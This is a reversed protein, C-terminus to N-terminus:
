CHKKLDADFSIWEYSQLQTKACILADVYDIRHRVMIELAATLLAKDRNVVGRLSLLKVLKEIVIEQPVSYFKTLVYLVEMVVESMIEVHLTGAQIQRFIEQSKLLHEAHDEALFRVIVNTDILSVM